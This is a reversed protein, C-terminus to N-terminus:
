HYPEPFQGQSDKGAIVIVIEWRITIIKVFTSESMCTMQNNLVMKHTADLLSLVLYIEEYELKSFTLPQRPWARRM